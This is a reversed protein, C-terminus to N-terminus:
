GPRRTRTNPRGQPMREGRQSARRPQARARTAQRDAEASRRLADMLNIVQPQPHDKVKDIREGRNKKGILEKLASEYRDEFKNPQFHGTRSKIIQIALDLM